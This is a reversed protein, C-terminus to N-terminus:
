PAAITEPLVTSARPRQQKPAANLSVIGSVPRYAGVRQDCVWVQQCSWSHAAFM